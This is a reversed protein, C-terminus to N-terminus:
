VQDIDPFNYKGIREKTIFRPDAGPESPDRQPACKVIESVLQEYASMDGAAWACEALLILAAAKGMPEDNSNQIGDVIKRLRDNM